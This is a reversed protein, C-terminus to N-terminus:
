RHQRPPARRGSIRRDQQNEFNRVAQQWDRGQEKHDEIMDQMHDEILNRKGTPTMGEFHFERNARTEVKSKFADFDSKTDYRVGGVTIPTYADPTRHGCGVGWYVDMTTECFPCPVTQDRPVVEDVLITKCSPCRLDVVRVCAM